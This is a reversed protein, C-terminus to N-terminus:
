GTGPIVAPRVPASWTDEAVVKTKKSKAVLVEAPREDIASGHRKVVERRM